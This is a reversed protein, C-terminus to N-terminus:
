PIRRRNVRSFPFQNKMKPFDFKMKPINLYFNELDKPVLTGHSAGEEVKWRPVVESRILRAGSFPILRISLFSRLIQRLGTFFRPMRPQFIYPVKGCMVGRDGPVVPISDEANCKQFKLFANM